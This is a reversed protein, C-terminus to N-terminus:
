HNTDPCLLYAASCPSSRPGGLEQALAREEVAAISERMIILFNLRKCTNMLLLTLALSSVPVSCFGPRSSQLYNSNENPYNNGNQQNLTLKPELKPYLSTFQNREVVKNDVKEELRKRKREKKKKKENKNKNKFRIM